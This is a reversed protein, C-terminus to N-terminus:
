RDCRRGGRDLRRCGTPQGAGAAGTRQALDRWPYVNSPYQDALVVIRDDRRASVNGAVTSLAYSVAPVVAVGEADGGILASFLQRLRELDDFFDAAAIMWPHEKRQVARQGTDTVHRLQPAMYACNLYAVDDPIAVADRQCPLPTKTM